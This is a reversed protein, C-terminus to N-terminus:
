IFGRVKSNGNTGVKKVRIYTWPGNLVKNFDDTFAEIDTIDDADLTLTPDEEGRVDVTTGQITVTDGATVTGYLPRQADQDYRSDLRFWDGNGATSADYLVKSRKISTM